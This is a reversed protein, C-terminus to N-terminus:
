LQLDPLTSDSLRSEHAPHNPTVEAALVPSTAACYGDPFPIPLKPFAAQLQDYFQQHWQILHGLNDMQQLRANYEQQYDFWTKADSPVPCCYALNYLNSQTSCYLSSVQELQERTASDPLLQWREKFIFLQQMQEIFLRLQDPQPAPVQYQNGAAFAVIRERLANLTLYNFENDSPTDM